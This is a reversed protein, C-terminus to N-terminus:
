KESTLFGDLETLFKDFAQRFVEEEIFRSEISFGNLEGNLAKQYLEENDCKVIGFWSGDKEQKFGKPAKIDLASDLQWHQLVYVGEALNGSDHMENMNKNLGNKSFNRVIKDIADKEFVVEYAGRKQDFRPIKMDAIMFYGMLINRSKDVEQFQYHQKSFAMFDSEIAAEDVLAIQFEIQDEDPIYLKILEM